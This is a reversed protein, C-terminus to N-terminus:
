RGSVASTSEWTPSHGLLLRPPPEAEQTDGGCQCDGGRRLDEAQVAAERGGDVGQVVDSSQVAQLLHRVLHSAPMHTKRGARSDADAQGRVKGEKEKGDDEKRRRGMRSKKSGRMKM